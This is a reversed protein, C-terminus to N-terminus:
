IPKVKINSIKMYLIKGNKCYELLVENAKLGYKSQQVLPAKNGYEKVLNSDLILDQGAETHKFHARFTYNSIKEVVAEQNGFYVKKLEITESLPEKFEIYFYIQKADGVSSDKQFYTSLIEQPFETQFEQKLVCFNLSISFIFLLLIIKYHKM